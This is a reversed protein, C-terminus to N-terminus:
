VALYEPRQISTMISHTMKKDLLIRACRKQLKIIDQIHRKNRPGWVVVGNELIPQIISNYM